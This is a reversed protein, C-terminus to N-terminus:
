TFRGPKSQWGSYHFVGSRFSHAEKQMKEDKVSAMCTCSFFTHSIAKDTAVHVVGKEARFAGM